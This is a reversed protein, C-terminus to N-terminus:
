PGVITCDYGEVIPVFLQRMTPVACTQLGLVPFYRSVGSILVCWARSLLALDGLYLDSSCIMFESSPFVMMIILFSFTAPLFIIVVTLTSLRFTGGFGRGKGEEMEYFRLGGLGATVKVGLIRRAM